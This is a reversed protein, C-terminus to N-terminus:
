EVAKGCSPCIRPPMELAAIATNACARAADRLIRLRFTAM